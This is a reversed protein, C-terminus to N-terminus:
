NAICGGFPSYVAYTAYGQDATSGSYVGGSVQPCGVFPMCSNPCTAFEDGPQVGTASDVGEACRHARLKYRSGDPEAYYQVRCNTNKSMARRPLDEIFQPILGPIWSRGCSSANDEVVYYTGTSGCGGPGDAAIPYRGNQAKYLELALQTEKLSAQMAKNRANERAGSASVYIVSILISLIVLVTLIEILTFGRSSTFVHM